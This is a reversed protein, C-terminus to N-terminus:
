RAAGGNEFELSFKARGDAETTMLVSANYTKGTRQSKCDKLRARGDRLLKDVVQRTPRKGLRNFFANDKWIVFRCERSACFFGKEREAVQRGCHPCTGIVSAGPGARAPANPTNAYQNVLNKMMSEIEEMFNEPAYQGKEIQTLKTEWDATMAPSKLQEPMAAILARGKETPILHKAKGGGERALFGKQVLKEITAARTAPTGIGRREADEPMAEASASEMAALLTDETFHKLPTTRGEKLEASLVPLTTQELVDPLADPVSDKNPGGLLQQEVAKWGEDLVTRGKATFIQGACEIQVVTEAYRHPEGVAALLRAAILRLISAEGVPLFSLDAGAVSQTPLIAHHDSVKKDNISQKTHVPIAGRFGFAAATDMVLGPLGAAMDETLYRSDTRPYTVLKKEYLAQTYDLTQQASFGLLRNADRQLTTLDYLAPPRESKEKRETKQVVTWSSKRCEALLTEAHSKDKFRDSSAMCGGTQLQIIYFPEPKFAMIAVEREVTMALTPTMVRGVNLTVGCLCSFLRTANIGVLWDARERCLAAKYLSDYETSPRLNEFGARIAADEMSSIWLRSVPKRCGCEQYVLRFILEGERGADTACVIRDVDARHMLECLVDFQKKTSSSVLYKWREPLIPLDARSWHDFRPDYAGPPALEVLHGVCWSVIWGSGELYGDRRATVGLVKSITRAVSPKEAIILDPLFDREKWIKCVFVAGHVQM